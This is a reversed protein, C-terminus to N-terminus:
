EPSKNELYEEDTMGMSRAVKKEDDTIRPAAESGSRSSTPPIAGEKNKTADIIGQNRAKEQAQKILDPGSVFAFADALAKKYSVKNGDSDVAFRKIEKAVREAVEPKNLSPNKESFLDWVVEFATQSSLDESVKPTEAAVTPTEETVTPNAAEGEPKDEKPDAKAEETSAPEYKEKLAKNEEVLRQAERTSNAYREKYTLEELGTADTKPVEEGSNGAIEPVAPDAPKANGTTDPADAKLEEPM